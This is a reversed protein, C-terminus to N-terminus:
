FLRLIKRMRRGAWVALLAKALDPPLFILFYGTAVAFFPVSKSTVFENLFLIYPLAVAYVALLSILAALIARFSTKPSKKLLWAELPAAVIFGLLYGFSPTAIVGPGCVGSFAPLGLTGMLVYLLLTYLCYRPPLLQGCLLVFFTQTTLLTDTGPVPFRLWLTSVVILACLLASYCLLEIRGSKGKM